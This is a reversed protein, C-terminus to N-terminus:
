SSGLLVGQAFRQLWEEYPGLEEGNTLSQTLSEMTAKASDEAVEVATQASRIAAERQGNIALLWAQSGKAWAHLPPTFETQFIEEASGSVIARKGPANASDLEIAQSYAQAATGYNVVGNRNLQLAEITARGTPTLGVILTYDDNWRFHSSWKQQRPHYLSVIEGRVPDSGETKNYKHGNCGQCALALNDLTTKGDQSRPIIHEM